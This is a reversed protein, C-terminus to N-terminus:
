ITALLLGFADANFASAPADGLSVGRPREVDGCVAAAALEEAGRGGRRADRRAAAEGSRRGNGRADTSTRRRAMAVARCDRSQGHRAVGAARRHAHGATGACSAVGAHVAGTVAGRAVLTVGELAARQAGIQQLLFGASWDARVKFTNLLNIVGFVQGRAFEDDLRTLVETRLTACMGDILRPYSNNMAPAAGAAGGRAAKAAEAADISKDMQRLCTAIQSGMAPMRMDNFRGEEFCRAAAMHTAALKLLSFVQYYRVSAMSVDLGAKEAYRAYFWEPEALRCILKSGGMYMPLSAWALDEHPDGLHVLEWDLIATIRGGQELFNGTRYDGHVIAVRPAVPNHSKLWRIGWEALPYPRM